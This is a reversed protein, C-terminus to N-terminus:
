GFLGVKKLRPFGRQTQVTMRLVGPFDHLEQRVMGLHLMHVMGGQCVMGGGGVGLERGRLQQVAGRCNQRRNGQASEYLDGSMEAM